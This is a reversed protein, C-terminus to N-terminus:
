WESMQWGANPISLGGQDESMNSPAGRNRHVWPVGALFLAMFADRLSLAACRSAQRSTLAGWSDILETRSDPWPRRRSHPYGAFTSIGVPTASSRHLNSARRRGFKLHLRL